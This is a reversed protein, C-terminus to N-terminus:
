TSEVKVSDIKKTEQMPLLMVRDFKVMTVGGEYEENVISNLEGLMNNILLRVFNRGMEHAHPYGGGFRPNIESVVFGRNTLFCDIDVPGVLDIVNNVAEILNKLEVDNVSISKDTEGARMKVKKKIFIDITEKSLLDIYCDIGYEEGMIFPQFVLDHQIDKLIKLEERNHIVSNGISASGKRPKAMLPFQMEGRTVEKLVEDIDIYTPITPIGAGKLYQYTKFKDFCIDITKENSIIVKIGEQAFEETRESLITLEPDILSLIGKVKYKRCISKIQEMYNKDDIRAVIQYCDAAYLAPATPDCDVAIVKGNIKNLEEKFYEVLKVRRGASCILLNVIGM